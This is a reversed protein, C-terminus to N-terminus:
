GLENKAIIPWIESFSSVTFDPQVPISKEWSPKFDSPFYITHFGAIGGPIIDRDLQDGTLFKVVPNGYKSAIETFFHATKKGAVVEAVYSALEYHTLIEKCRRSTGETAVITVVSMNRLHPIADLVGARLDPICHQIHNLFSQGLAEVPIGVRPVLGEFARQAAEKPPTGALAEAIGLALFKPPYRLDHGHLTALHQDIVRVFGLRDPFDTILHLAKETSELLILQGEAYVANTDWLTNDADTVLLVM